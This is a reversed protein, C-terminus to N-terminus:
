KILLIEIFFIDTVGRGGASHCLPHSLFEFITTSKQFRPYSKQPTPPSTQLMHPLRAALAVFIFLLHQSQFGTESLIDAADPPPPKVEEEVLRGM